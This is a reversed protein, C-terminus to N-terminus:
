LVTCPYKCYLVTCYLVTCYLVTSVTCPYCQMYIAYKTNLSLSQLSPTKHLHM